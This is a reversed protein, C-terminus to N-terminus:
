ATPQMTLIPAGPTLCRQREPKAAAGTGGIVREGVAEVLDICQDDEVIHQHRPLVHEKVTM